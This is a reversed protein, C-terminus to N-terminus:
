EMAGQGRDEAGNDESESDDSEPKGPLGQTAHHVFAGASLQQFERWLCNDRAILIFGANFHNPDQRSTCASPVIYAYQKYSFVRGLIREHDPPNNYYTQRSLPFRYDFHLPTQTERDQFDDGASLELAYMRAAESETYANSTGDDSDAASSSQAASAAARPNDREADLVEEVAALFADDDDDSDYFVFSGDPADAGLDPQRRVAPREPYFVGGSPPVGLDFRPFPQPRPWPAASASITRESGPVYLHPRHCYTRTWRHHNHMFRIYYSQCLWFPQDTWESTQTAAHRRPPPSLDPVVPEWVPNDARWLLQFELGPNAKAVPTWGPSPRAPQWLGSVPHFSDSPPPPVFPRPPVFPPFVMQPWIQKPSRPAPLAEDVDITDNDAPGPPPRWDMEDDSGGDGDGRGLSNRSFGSFRGRHSPLPGALAGPLLALLALGLARVAFSVAAQGGRRSLGGTTPRRMTSATPGGIRSPGGTTPCRM